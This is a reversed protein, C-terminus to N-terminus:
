QRSKKFAVWHQATIGIHGMGLVVAALGLSIIRGYVALLLVALVPLVALPLPIGLFPRYFDKTLHRGRFYRGWCLLYLVMAVFALALWVTRWSMGHINLDDFILVLLTCLVQGTRELVLLLKNEKVPLNDIPQHRGYFINPVFLCCLFILGTYSFGLTGFM